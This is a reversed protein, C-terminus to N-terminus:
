NFTQNNFNEGGQAAMSEKEIGGRERERERERERMREGKREIGM